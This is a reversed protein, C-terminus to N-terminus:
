LQKPLVLVAVACAYDSDHSISIDCQEFVRWEPSPIIKPRGSNEYAVVVDRFKPVKGLAKFFAEKAAIVGALHEAARESSVSGLNFTDSAVESHDFYKALFQEDDLHKAMGPIYLIDIGTAIKM